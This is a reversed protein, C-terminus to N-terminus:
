TERLWQSCTESGKRIGGGLELSSNSGGCQLSLGQAEKQVLGCEYTLKGLNIAKFAVSSDVM